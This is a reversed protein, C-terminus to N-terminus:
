YPFLNKKMPQIPLGKGQFSTGSRLGTSKKYGMKLYFPVAYLTAAVRILKGGRTRIQKEFEEVLSRAVGQRHYDPLVFLSGLRDIRGRLVGVIQAKDEALLVIESRIVQHIAEQHVPDPSDAYQFPGLFDARDQDPLFALNFQCYTDRILKGVQPADDRHYNRLLIM